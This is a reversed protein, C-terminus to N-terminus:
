QVLMSCLRVLSLKWFTTKYILVSSFFVFLFVSFVSLQYKSYQMKVIKQRNICYFPVLAQIKIAFCLFVLKLFFKFYETSCHLSTEAVEKSQYPTQCNRRFVLYNAVFFLHYNHSLISTNALAVTIITNAIYIYWIPM